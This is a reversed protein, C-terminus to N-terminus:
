LRVMDETHSRRSPHALVLPEATYTPTPSPCPLRPEQKVLIATLDQSFSWM